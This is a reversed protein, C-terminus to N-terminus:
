ANQEVSRKLGDIVRDQDDDTLGHWMPLSLLGAYAQEAAPCLGAPYGLARYYSHQYVPLYHVNVGIGLARLAAFIRRRAPAPDAGNVRIAYLHWAHPRDAPRVPLRLQGFYPRV